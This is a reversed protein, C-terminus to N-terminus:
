LQTCRHDIRGADWGSYTHPNPRLPNRTAPHTVQITVDCRMCAYLHKLTVGRSLFYFLKSAQAIIDLALKTIYTYWLISWDHARNQAYYCNIRQDATGGVASKRM